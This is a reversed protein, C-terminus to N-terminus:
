EMGLQKHLQLCLTYGFRRCSAIATELNAANKVPDREDEPQLYVRTHRSQLVPRAVPRRKNGLGLVTFPLGDMANVSTSSVVYKYATVYPILLSNIVPTKPSCVIAPVAGMGKQDQLGYSGNTEIQVRYGSEHLAKVFPGVNQRLPEGGTIVVLPPEAYRALDRDHHYTVVMGLLEDVSLRALMSTYDTDCGPCQLNCGYLRVFVAPAGAYPGEGQITDFVSHVDLDGEVRYAPKVPEQDNM